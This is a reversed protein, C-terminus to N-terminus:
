LSNLYDEIDKKLEDHCDIINSIDRLEAKTIGAQKFAEILDMGQSYTRACCFADIMGLLYQHEKITAM